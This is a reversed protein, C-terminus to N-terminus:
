DYDTDGKRAELYRQQAYQRMNRRDQERNRNIAPPGPTLPKFKDPLYPKHNPNPVFPKPTAM